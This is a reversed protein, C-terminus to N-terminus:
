NKYRTQTLALKPLKINPLIYTSDTQILSMLIEYNSKVKEVANQLLLNVEKQKAESTLLELYNTEGLEYRRKAASAFRVFLSDLYEYSAKVNQWYIASYYVKSVEQKLLIEDMKYKEKQAEMKSKNAGHQTFYQTPFKISQKIGLSTLSYIIRGM